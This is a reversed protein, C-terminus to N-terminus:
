KKVPAAAPTVTTANKNTKHHAKTSKKSIKNSKSVPKGAVTSATSSTTTNTTNAPATTKPAQAGFTLPMTSAALVIAAFLTKKM